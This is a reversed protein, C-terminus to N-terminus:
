WSRVASWSAAGLPLDDDGVEAPPREGEDGGPECRDTRALATPTTGSELRAVVAAFSSGSVRGVDITRGPSAM